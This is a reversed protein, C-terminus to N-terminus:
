EAGDPEDCYDEPQREPHEDHADQEPPSTLPRDRRTLGRTWLYRRALAESQTGRDPVNTGGRADASGFLREPDHITIGHRGTVVVGEVRLERLVRV